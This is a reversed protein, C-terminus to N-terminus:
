EKEREEKYFEHYDFWKDEIINGIKHIPCGWGEDEIRIYKGKMDNFHDVGVVNMIQMIEEIGKAYGKFEKADLYGRGLVYGGICCGWGRGEVVLALTLVGHDAMSLDVKTIKANKIEKM